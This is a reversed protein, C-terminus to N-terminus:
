RRMIAADYHLIPLKVAFGTLNAGVSNGDESIDHTPQKSVISCCRRALPPIKM